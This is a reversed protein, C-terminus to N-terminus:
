IVLRVLRLLESAIVKSELAIKTQPESPASQAPISSSM